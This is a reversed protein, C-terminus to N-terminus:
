NDNSQLKTHIVVLAGKRESIEGGFEFGRVLRDSEILPRASPFAQRQTSLMSPMFAEPQYRRERTHPRGSPPCM